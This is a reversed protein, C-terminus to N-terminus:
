INITGSIWRLSIMVTTIGPHSCGGRKLSMKSVSTATNLTDSFTAPTHHSMYVHLGYILLHSSLAQRSMNNQAQLKFCSPRYAVRTTPSSVSKPSLVVCVRITRIPRYLGPGLPLVLNGLRPSFLGM